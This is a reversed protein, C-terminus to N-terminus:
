PKAPVDPKPAPAVPKMFIKNDVPANVQVSDLNVNVETAGVVQRTKFPVRLGNVLRYDSIFSQTPISGQASEVVLDTRVPLKTKIDYFTVVPKGGKIPTMQVAYADASGVKRVGLVKPAKYLSRWDSSRVENSQNQMQKLEGGALTRLGNIPDRSWGTKGDYGQEFKGIGGIEQLVYVKDPLQMMTMMTGNIKQAPMSIKGSMKMTKVKAFASKSGQAAAADDLIKNAPPLKVAPKTTKQAMSPNTTAIVNTMLAAGLLAICLKRNM